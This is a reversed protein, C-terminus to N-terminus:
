QTTVNLAPQEALLNVWPNVVCLNVIVRANVERM